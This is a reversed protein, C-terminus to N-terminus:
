ADLGPMNLLTCGFIRWSGDPQQEMSYLAEYTKGDPGVITVRQSPRGLSDDGTEGFDFKQPRYVPKYGQRVMQMFIEPTPFLRHITPAALSYARDGDDARFAEIQESIIRRFESRDSDNLSGATVSGSLGFLLVLAFLARLM